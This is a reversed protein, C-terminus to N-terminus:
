FSILINQTSNYTATFQNESKEDVNDNHQSSWHKEYDGVILFLWIVNLWMGTADVIGVENRGGVNVMKKVNWKM